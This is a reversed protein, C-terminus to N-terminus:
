SGDIPPLPAVGIEVLFENVDKWPLRTGRALLEAFHIRTAEASTLGLDFFRRLVWVTGHCDCGYREALKRGWPDDVVVMAGVGAAQVVAETEGRDEIGQTEREILLIDVTGKDYDDCREVTTFSSLLAQVRDKTTRRKFM